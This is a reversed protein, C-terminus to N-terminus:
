SKNSKNIASQRGSMTKWESRSGWAETVYRKHDVKYQPQAADREKSKSDSRSVVRKLDNKRRRDASEFDRAVKRYKNEFSGPKLEYKVKYLFESGIVKRLDQKSLVNNDGNFPKSVKSIVEYGIGNDLRVLSKGIPDKQIYNRAEEFTKFIVTM